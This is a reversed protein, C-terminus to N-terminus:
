TPCRQVLAHRFYSDLETTGLRPATFLYWPHRWIKKLRVPHRSGFFTSFCQGLSYPVSPWILPRYFRCWTEITGHILTRHDKDASTQNTSIVVCTTPTTLRSPRWGTFASTTLEIRTVHLTSQWVQFLFSTRFRRRTSRSSLLKM